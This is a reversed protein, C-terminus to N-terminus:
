GQRHGEGRLRGGVGGVAGTEELAGLVASVTEQPHTQPYAHGGPLIRLRHAASTYQAWPEVQAETAAEDQAGAFAFLPCGVAVPEPILYREALFMDSRVPRLLDRLFDPYALLAPPLGGNRRLWGILESDDADAVAARSLPLHPARSASALLASPPRLGDREIRLTLEYALVAGFSHGFFAYPTTLEARLGALLADLLPELRDPLPEDMRSGRGPLEVPALEVGEPVYPRWAGFAGAGGGAPPLCLLRLRPQGVSFRGSIWDTRPTFADIASM